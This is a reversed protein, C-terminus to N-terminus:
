SLILRKFYFILLFSIIKNFYLMNMLYEFLLFFIKLLLFDKTQYLFLFKYSYRIFHFDINYDMLHFIKEAEKFDYTTIILFDINTPNGFAKFSKILLDLLNLYKKKGFIAFYILNKM